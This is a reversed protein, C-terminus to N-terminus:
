RDVCIGQPEAGAQGAQNGAGGAGSSGGTGDDPPEGEVCSDAALVTDPDCYSGPPCEMEGRACNLTICGRDDAYEMDPLCKEAGFCDDDTVCPIRVCGQEDALPDDIDCGLIQGGHDTLSDCVAGEECNRPVCGFQDPTKGPHEVDSTAACVEYDDDGCHGSEECPTPVCGSGEESSGPDCHWLEECVVGDPEDCLLRTCGRDVARGPNSADSSWAGQASLPTDPAREPDCTWHEPCAAADEADCPILECEGSELCRADEPCPQDQCSPGCLREPCGDMYYETVQAGPLCVEDGQCDGDVTCPTDDFCPVMGYSANKDADEFWCSQDADCDADTQCFQPERSAETTGSDCATIAVLWGLIWCVTKRM